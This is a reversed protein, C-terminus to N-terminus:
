FFGSSNLFNIWCNEERIPIITIPFSLRLNILHLISNILTVCGKSLSLVLMYTAKGLGLSM